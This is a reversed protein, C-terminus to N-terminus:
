GRASTGRPLVVVAHGHVVVSKEGNTVRAVTGSPATLEVRLGAATGRWGVKIAGHPTPVLGQAWIVDAGHPQVDFTAYGPSTPQVGLVYGTLLPAGGSSWGSDYSPHIDVPPGGYPGITEWTTGPGHKTMYGWERRILDLASSDLGHRFRSLADFYGMFPYVRQDGDSGWAPNDWINVDVLGNGYDRWLVSGDWTLAAVQQAQTGAGALTALATADEPHAHPTVSLPADAFAQGDWFTAAIKADLAAARARWTTAQPKGLWSALEAGKELAYAYVASYYAATPSQRRIYAYDAPHGLRNAVLGGSLQAPYWRDLVGTVAPWLQRGLAVRGTRLVVDHLTVVFYASYDVLVDSGGDLPSAPIAGDDHQLSAFFRLMSAEVSADSSSVLLTNDIVAEDGIYPCRDRVVGDLLITHIAAPIPCGRPDLSVPPSVMDRASKVSEAWITNLLPDSSRFTGVASAAHATPAAVLLLCAAVVALGARM